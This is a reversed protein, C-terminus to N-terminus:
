EGDVIGRVPSCEATFSEIEVTAYFIRPKFVEAEVEFAAQEGPDLDAVTFRGDTLRVGDADYFKARVVVEDLREEYRNEVIGTVTPPYGLTLLWTSHVFAALEVPVNKTITGSIGRTDTVTLTVHHTREEDFRHLVDWFAEVPAPGDDFEWVFRDIAAGAVTMSTSTFWYDLRGEGGDPCWVFDAIPREIPGFCGSLLLACSLVLLVFRGFRTRLRIM